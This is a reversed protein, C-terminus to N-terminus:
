SVNNQKELARKKKEGFQMTCDQDDFPFYQVNIRCSSKYIAPPVWLMMGDYSVVVNSHFSVEYHGDASSPRKTIHLRICM